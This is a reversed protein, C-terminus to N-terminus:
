SGASSGCVQSLQYSQVRLLCPGLGLWAMGLGCHGSSPHPHLKPSSSYFWWFVFSSLNPASIKSRIMEQLLFKGIGPLTHVVERVVM